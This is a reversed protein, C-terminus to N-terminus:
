HGVDRTSTMLTSFSGAREELKVDGLCSSLLWVIPLKSWTCCRAVADLVVGSAFTLLRATDSRDCCYSATTYYMINIYTHHLLGILISVSKLRLVLQSSLSLPLSLCISDLYIVQGSINLM